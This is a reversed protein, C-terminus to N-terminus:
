TSKTFTVGRGTRAQFTGKKEKGTEMDSLNPRYALSRRDIHCVRNDLHRGRTTHGIYGVGASIHEQFVIFKRIKSLTGLSSAVGGFRVPKWEREM